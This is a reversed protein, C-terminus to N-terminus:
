QFRPPVPSGQPEKGAVNKGRLTCAYTAAAIVDTPKMTEGWAIMATGPAGGKVTNYIDLRTAGHIQYLDTLNPGILGRGDPNHCGACKAVFIEKGQAVVEGNDMDAALLAEDVKPGGPEKLSMQWTAYQARYAEDTTRGAHALTYYAFYMVAFVFTAIFTWRWWGPLPNDYEQIGDYAHDMLREDAPTLKPEDSM